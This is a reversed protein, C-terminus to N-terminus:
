NFPFSLLIKSHPYPFPGGISREALDGWYGLRTVPGLFGTPDKACTANANRCVVDYQRHVDWEIEWGRPKQVLSGVSTGACRVSAGGWFAPCRDVAAGASTAVVRRLMSTAVRAGTSAPPPGIDIDDSFCYPWRIMDPSETPSPCSSSSFVHPCSPACLRVPQKKSKPPQPQNRVERLSFAQPM